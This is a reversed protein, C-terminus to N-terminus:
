CTVRFLLLILAQVNYLVLLLYQIALSPLPPPPLFLYEGTQSNFEAHTEFLDAVTVGPNHQTLSLECRFPVFSVALNRESLYESCASDVFFGPLNLPM